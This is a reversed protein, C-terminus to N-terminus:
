LTPATPTQMCFAAKERVVDAEEISEGFKFFYEYVKRYNRKENQNAYGAKKPGHAHPQCIIM